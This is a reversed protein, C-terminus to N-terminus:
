LIALGVVRNIQGLAQQYIPDYQVKIISKVADINSAYDQAQYPNKKHPIKNYYPHLDEYFTFKINPNVFMKVFLLYDVFSILFNLTEDLTDSEIVAPQLKEILTQNEILNFDLTRMRFGLLNTMHHSLVQSLFNRRLISYIQTSGSLTAWNENNFLDDNHHFYPEIGVVGKLVHSGSRGPTFIVPEQDKPINWEDVSIEDFKIIEEYVWLGYCINRKWQLHDYSSWVPELNKVDNEFSTLVKVMKLQKQLWYLDNYSINDAPTVDTVYDQKDHLFFLKEELTSYVLGNINWDATICPLVKLKLREAVTSKVLSNGNHILFINNKVTISQM